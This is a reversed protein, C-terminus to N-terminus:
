TDCQGHRASREPISPGVIACAEQCSETLLKAVSRLYDLVRGCSAHLLGSPPGSTLLRRELEFLELRESKGRLLHRGISTAIVDDPIASRALLTGSILVDQGTRRCAEEIRAATNMAEGVLAIERGGIAGVVLAGCHLSARIAPAAAHRRRLEFAALDLAQRCAFLGRIARTNARAGGLPWTVILADGVYRHM